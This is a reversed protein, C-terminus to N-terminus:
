IATPNDIIWGLRQRSAISCSACDVDFRACSDLIYAWIIEWARSNLKALRVQAGVAVACPGECRCSPQLGHHDRCLAVVFVVRTDDRFVFSFFNSLDCTRLATCAVRSSGVAFVRDTQLFCFSFLRSAGLTSWQARSLCEFPRWTRDFGVLHM